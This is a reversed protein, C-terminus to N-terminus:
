QSDPASDADELDGDPQDEPEPEGDAEGEPADGDESVDEGAEEAMDAEESVTDGAEGVPLRNEGDEARLDFDEDEREYSQLGELIAQEEKEQEEPSKHTIVYEGDYIRNIAVNVAKEDRLERDIM